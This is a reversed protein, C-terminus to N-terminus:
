HQGHTEPFIPYQLNQQILWAKLLPLVRYDYMTNYFVDFEDGQDNWLSIRQMDYNAGVGGPEASDWITNFNLHKVFVVTGNNICVLHFPLGALPISVQLM